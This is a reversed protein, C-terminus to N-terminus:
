KSVQSDAADAREEARAGALIGLLGIDDEQCAHEFTPDPSRRLPLSWPKTWTWPDDITIECKLSQSGIRTFREVL